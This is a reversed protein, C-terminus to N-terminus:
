SESEEQGREIADAQDSCLSAVSYLSDYDCDVGNDQLTEIAQEFLMSARRLKAIAEEVQPKM